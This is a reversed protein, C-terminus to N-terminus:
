KAANKLKSGVVNPWQIGGPFQGSPSVAIAARKPRRKCAVFWDVADMAVGRQSNLGEIACVAFAL